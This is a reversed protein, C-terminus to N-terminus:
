FAFFVDFICFSHDYICIWFDSDACSVICLFHVLCFLDVFHLIHLRLICLHVFFFTDATILLFFNYSTRLAHVHTDLYLLSSIWDIDM